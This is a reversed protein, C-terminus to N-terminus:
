GGVQPGSVDLGVAHRGRARGVHSHWGPASPPRPACRPLDLSAESCRDRHHYALIRAWEMREREGQRDAVPAGHDVESPYCCIALL